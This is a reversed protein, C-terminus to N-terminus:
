ELFVGIKIKIREIKYVLIDDTPIPVNFSPHDGFVLLKVQDQIKELSGSTLFSNQVFLSYGEQLINKEMTNATQELLNDNIGLAQATMTDNNDIMSHNTDIIVSSDSSDSIDDIINGDVSSWTHEMNNGVNPVLGRGREITSQSTKTELMVSKKINDKISSLSPAFDEPEIGMIQYQPVYSKKVEPKNRESNKFFKVKDNPM